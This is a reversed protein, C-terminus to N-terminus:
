GVREQIDKYLDRFREKWEPMVETFPTGRSYAMAIESSEPIELLLPINEDSCYRSVRYDGIGSRNVIVGTRLGLAKTVEVAAKLDALGFSTPEAVLLVYDSSRLSELVPCGTGPPVDIIANSDDSIRRKAAAIIPTAMPQGVNLVGRIFTFGNRRAGEVIGLESMKESIAGRPCERACGGCGNCLDEFTLVENPLVAIANKRCVKSCIGCLDCAERDVSPIKKYIRELVDLELDLFIHCNPGEVDCDVLQVDRISLALNTAVTTKGTGGKGSAVAIRM